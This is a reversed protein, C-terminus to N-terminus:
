LKMYIGDVHANHGFGCDGKGDIYRVVAFGKFFRVTFKCEGFENSSYTVTKNILPLPQTELTALNYAPAATVNDFNLTASGKEETVTLSGAGRDEGYMYAYKGSINKPNAFDSITVASDIHMASVNYSRDTTPAYWTGEASSSSTSLQWIGTIDGTPMFELLRHSTSDSEGILKIEKPTKQDTYYLSGFLYGQQEKYWILVPIRGDLNGQWQHITEQAESSVEETEEEQVNNNHEHEKESTTCSTLMLFLVFIGLAKNM